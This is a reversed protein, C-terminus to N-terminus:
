IIKNVKNAFELINELTNLSKLNVFMNHGERKWNQNKDDWYNTYGDILNARYVEGFENKAIYKIYYLRDYSIWELAEKADDHASLQTNQIFKNISKNGSTWNKFNQQFHIACCIRKCKKCKNTADSPKILMISDM